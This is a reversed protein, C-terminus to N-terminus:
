FKFFYKSVLFINEFQNGHSNYPYLYEPVVNKLLNFLNKQIFKQYFLYNEEYKYLNMHRLLEM